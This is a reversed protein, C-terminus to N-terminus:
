AAGVIAEVMANVAAGQDMGAQRVLAWWTPFSLALHTLARQTATLGAGLVEHWAAVSPAARLAM